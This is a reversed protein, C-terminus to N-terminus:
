SLYCHQINLSYSLIGLNITNSQSYLIYQRHEKSDFYSYIEKDISLQVFAFLKTSDISKHITLM